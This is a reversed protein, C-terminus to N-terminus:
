MGKMITIVQTCRHLDFMGFHCEEPPIGMLRALKAYADNREWRKAKLVRFFHGKAAKRAGRLQENALTGLPIDTDPHIGVYADCTNCIYAYPWAGYEKGYIESNNVIEVPGACANCTTIPAVAHKVRKLAKRSVHPLPRPAELHTHLYARPDIM